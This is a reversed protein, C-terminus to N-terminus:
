LIWRQARYWDADALVERRPDTHHLEFGTGLLADLALRNNRNEKRMFRFREKTLIISDNMGQKVM